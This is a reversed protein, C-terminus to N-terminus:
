AKALHTIIMLPTSKDPPPSGYPAPPAYPHAADPWGTFAKTSYEGWTAGYFLAVAPVQTLMVHELAYTAQQQKAQSTTAQLSGLLKDTSPNNFREFNSAAPKGVPAALSSDLLASLDLYPSGTGGFAGIAADFRGNQLDSYYAAYQPTQISVAIGLKNLEQEIVQAGQLWDTFGDPTIITMKVQKGDPGTLKSGSKHYGAHSLLSAAQQPQYAVVGRAPLSPDLWHQLGPLLLGSQSAPQVYGDEAKQAIAGRDLGDSLAQRFAQDRYPSKTLNLYLTITGGPPFWYRNASPDKSVWSKKVDPVFLTSWDYNGSALMLQSTQNGTLAPFVLKAVPAQSAQWCDSNKVLEYQNPTFSGLKYPGSVVPSTNTFTVPNSVKAWAHQPVILTQAIVQAFPVDPSSFKFSVTNGSASVSSLHHWVGASDLAASRKMLDFTYVVDAATIPKGDSWRAGSRMTFQLDKNGTFKHATALFPTYSGNLPNVYELPEYMYPTGSRQNPSFPNFNDQLTPSGNDVAITLSGLSGSQGGASGSHGSCAALALAAAVAAAAGARARARPRAGPRALPRRIRRM